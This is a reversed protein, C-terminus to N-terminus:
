ARMIEVIKWLFATTSPPPNDQEDNKEKSSCLCSIFIIGHRQEKQIVGGRQM